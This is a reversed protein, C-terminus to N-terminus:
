GANIVNIISLCPSISVMFTRRESCINVFNENLSLPLRGEDGIAKIICKVNESECCNTEELVVMLLKSKFQRGLWELAELRFSKNPWLFVM